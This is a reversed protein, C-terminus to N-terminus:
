PYKKRAFAMAFSLLQANDPSRKVHVVRMAIQDVIMVSDVDPLNGIIDSARVFLNYEIVQDAGGPELTQSFDPSSRVGQYDVGNWRFKIPIDNIVRDLHGNLNTLPIGSM